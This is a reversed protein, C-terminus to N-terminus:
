HELNKDLFVGAEKSSPAGGGKNFKKLFHKGGLKKASYQEVSITITENMKKRSTHFIKVGFELAM